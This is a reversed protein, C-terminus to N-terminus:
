FYPQLGYKKIGCVKKESEDELVRIYGSEGWDSSWSNKIIWYGDSNYGVLTMYYNISDKKCEGGSFVGTEYAYWDDNAHVGITVPGNVLMSYIKEYNKEERYGDLIIPTVKGANYNCYRKNEIYPYDKETMIYSGKLYNYTEKPNGVTCGRSSRDCDILQQPSLSESFNQNKIRYSCEITGITAFAWGAACGGENRVALCYDKWNVSSKKLNISSTDEEILNNHTYDSDDVEDNYDDLSFKNTKIKHESINVETLPYTQRMEEITLDSLHNIGKRYSLNQLNFRQISKVNSKFIQYRKIGEETNYDYKKNYILHWIKFLEKTNGTLYKAIILKKTTSNLEQLVTSTETAVYSLCIMIAILSCAIKNIHM